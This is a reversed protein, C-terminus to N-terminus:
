CLLSKRSMRKCKEYLLGQAIACSYISLHDLQNLAGTKFVPTPKDRGLTRIGTKGGFAFLTGAIPVKNQTLPESFYKRFVGVQNHMLNCFVRLVIM